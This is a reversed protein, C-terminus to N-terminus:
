DAVAGSTRRLFELRVRAVRDEEVRALRVHHERGLLLRDRVRQEAPALVRRPVRAVEVGPARVAERAAPVRAIGEDLRALLAREPGCDLEEDPVQSLCAPPLRHGRKNAPATLYM